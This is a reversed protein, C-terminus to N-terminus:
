DTSGVMLVDDVSTLMYGMIKDPNNDDNGLLTMVECQSEHLLKDYGRKKKEGDTWPSVKGEPIDPFRIAGEGPVLNRKALKALIYNKPRLLLGDPHEQLPITLVTPDRM